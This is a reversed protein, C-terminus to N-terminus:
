EVVLVSSAIDGKKNESQVFYIGAAFLKTQISTNVSQPKIEMVCNGYADFLRIKEAIETGSSITIRENAPNPFITISFDNEPIFENALPGGCLQTETANVTNTVAAFTSVAYIGSKVIAGQTEIFNITNVDPYSRKENCGAEGLSDTTFLYPELSDGFSATYGSLAFGNTATRDLAFCEEKSVGGFSMTRLTDGNYDTLLLWVNASDTGRNHGIGFTETYGSFAFGKGPVEVICYSDEVNSGGYLKTWLLNGTLDTKMLMFDYNGAGGSNSGGCIVYGSNTEIVDNAEDWGGGGVINQWQLNGFADTKVIWNDCYGSGYSLNKGCFLFGGDTTQILQVAHDISPGGFTKTWLTDGNANTRILFADYDVPATESLGAMIFGGDSLALVSYAIDYRIGGYNKWWALNGVSDSRFLFVDGNASSSFTEGCAVFGHDLTEALYLVTEDASGGYNKSWLLNGNSNTHYVTADKGGVSNARSSGALLYDGNSMRKMPFGDEESSTGYHFQFVQAIGSVSILLLPLFLIKKM